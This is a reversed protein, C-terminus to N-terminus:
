KAREMAKPTKKKRQGEASARNSGLSECEFCRGRKNDGLQWWDAAAAVEVATFGLRKNAWFNRKKGCTVCRLKM